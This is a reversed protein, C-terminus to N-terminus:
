CQHAYTFVLTDQAKRGTDRCRRYVNRVGHVTVRLQNQSVPGEVFYELPTGPCFKSFRRATGSYWNGNKRGNFLLTGRRVGANRLVQRPREYYMWRQNGSAELRMLSGNHWWCSAAEATGSNAILGAPAALAAAIMLGYLRDAWGKNKRAM